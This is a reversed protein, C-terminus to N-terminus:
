YSWLQKTWEDGLVQVKGANVFIRDTTKPINQTIMHATNRLSMLLVHLLFM